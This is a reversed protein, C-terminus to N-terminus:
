WVNDATWRWVIWYWDDCQKEKEEKIKSDKSCATKFKNVTQIPLRKSYHKLL